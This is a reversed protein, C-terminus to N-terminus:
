AVLWDSEGSVELLLRREWLETHLRELHHRWVPFHQHMGELVQRSEAERARRRRVSSSAAGGWTPPCESACACRALSYGTLM